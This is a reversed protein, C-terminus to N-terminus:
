TVRGRAAVTDILWEFAERLNGPKNQFITMEESEEPDTDYRAYAVVQGVRLLEVSFVMGEAKAIHEDSVTLTRQIREGAPLRYETVEITAM